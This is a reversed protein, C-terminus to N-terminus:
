LVDLDVLSWQASHRQNEQPGLRDRPLQQNEIRVRITGVTGVGLERM